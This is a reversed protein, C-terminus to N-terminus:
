GEGRGYLSSNRVEEDSLGRIGNVAIIGARLADADTLRQRKTDKDHGHISTLLLGYTAFAKRVLKMEKSSETFSRLRIQELRDVAHIFPDGVQVLDRVAAAGLPRGTMGREIAEDARMNVWDGYVRREAPTFRVHRLAKRMFGFGITYGHSLRTTDIFTGADSRLFSDLAEFREDDLAAAELEPPTSPQLQEEGIFAEAMRM